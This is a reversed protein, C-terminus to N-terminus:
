VGFNRRSLIKRLQSKLTQYQFANIPPGSPGVATPHTEAVLSDCLSELWSVLQSGLVVPENENDSEGLYIKNSILISRNSTVQFDVQTKLQINGISDVSFRGDTGWAIAKKGYGIIEEAKSSLVLRDSTIIIQNGSLQTPLSEISEMNVEVPTIFKSLIQGSTIQISSGDSNVDEDIPKGTEEKQANINEKNRIFIYPHEGDFANVTGVNYGGFRISSGFRSELLLDGEYPTLPHIKPNEVFYEGLSADLTVVDTVNEAGASTASRDKNKSSDSFKKQGYAEELIREFNTNTQNFLNLKRSYFYQGFYKAVIVVENQLPYERINTELPIAIPLNEVPTRTHSYIPRCVIRGVYSYDKTSDGGELKPVMEDDSTMITRYCIAPELEYFLHMSEPKDSDARTALYRSRKTIQKDVAPKKIYAM